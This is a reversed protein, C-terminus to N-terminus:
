VTQQARDAVDSTLQESWVQRVKRREPGNLGGWVGYPVDQAISFALCADQVQCHQCIGKARAEQDPNLEGVFLDHGAGACASRARWGAPPIRLRAGAAGPWNEDAGAGGLAMPVGPNETGSESTM